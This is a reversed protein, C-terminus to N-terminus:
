AAELEKLASSQSEILERRKLEIQFKGVMARNTMNEAAWALYDIPVDALRYGKYKGFAMTEEHEPEATLFRTTLRQGKPGYVDWLKGTRDLKMELPNGFTNYNGCIDYVCASEKNPHPRVCRGVMQYWLALSMTPRGIVLCDLEPFDFGTTLVGVNVMVQIIGAKFDKILHTRERNKTESSVTAVAIGKNELERLVFGSDAISETFALIHKSGAALAETVSAIIHANINIAQLYQQVSSDTFNSGNSNPRLMGRKKEGDITSIFDPNCLFNNEILEQTQTVHIIDKFVKPRTRTLMKIQSGFSNSHLRYPTATLGIIKKPKIAAIFDLYQGGKANVLHCNHVLVDNAFYNNNGEVELNYVYNYINGNTFRRNHGRKQVTVNEVRAIGVIETEQQGSIKSQLPQKWGGRTSDETQPESYRDQLSSSVYTAESLNEGLIGYVLRRRISGMANESGNIARNWQRRTNIAQSRNAKSQGVDENTDRFEAYSQETDDTPFFKKRGGQSRMGQSLPIRKNQVELIPSLKKSNSAQQLLHMPTDQNFEKKIAYLIEDGPLLDRAAIYGQGIVYYPHNGTSTISVGQIDVCYLKEPAKRCKINLVKKLEIQNINHNYSRIYDGVRIDEINKGDIKTGRVFCEDIIVTEVDRFLDVKSIVTGITAFTAKGIEKIGLSASFIKADEFGFHQIKEYNSELIERSPQLIITKGPLASVIGAIVLSKGAGTPLVLIGNDHALATAVAKEQYPRLAIM